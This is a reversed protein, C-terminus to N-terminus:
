RAAARRAPWAPAAASTSVGEVGLLAQDAARGPRRVSTAAAKVGSRKARVVDTSPRPATAGALPRKESPVTSESAACGSAVHSSTPQLPSAEPLLLGTFSVM